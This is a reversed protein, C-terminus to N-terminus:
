NGSDLPLLQKARALLRDFDTFKYIKATEDYSGTMLRGGDPSFAVSSVRDAQGTFKALLHGDGTDWL